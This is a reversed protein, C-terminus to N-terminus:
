STKGATQSNSHGPWAAAKRHLLGRVLGDPNLFITASATHVGALWPRTASAVRLRADEPPQDWPEAEHDCALSWWGSDMLVLAGHWFQLPEDFSGSELVIASPDIVVRRRGGWEVSGLVEPPADVVPRIEHPPHLVSLVRVAPIAIWMRGLHFRRWGQAETDASPEFSALEAELLGNLYNRIAQNEAVVGASM